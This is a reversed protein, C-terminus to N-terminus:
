YNIHWGSTIIKQMCMYGGVNTQNNINCNNALISKSADKGAPVLGIEPSFVMAFIDRGVINPKQTGNVDVFYVIGNEPTIKIGFRENISGRSYVDIIVNYGDITIFSVIDDGIGIGENYAYPTSGGLTKINESFCGKTNFCEQIINFEPKITSKYWNNISSQSGNEVVLSNYDVDKAITLLMAQNLASYFKKLRNVIIIDNIKHTLTPLTIAAVVGIVGLTILVESLTFGKTKM